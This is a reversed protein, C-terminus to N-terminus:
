GNGGEPKTVDQYAYNWDPYATGDAKYQAPTCEYVVAVNLSDGDQMGEPIGSVTVKFVASKGPAVLKNYVYWGKEDLTWGEIDEYQLTYQEGAFARARVFVNTEGTNRLTVTKTLGSVQEEAESAYGFTVTQGGSASATGTFYALAPKIGSLVIMALALLGATLYKKKM